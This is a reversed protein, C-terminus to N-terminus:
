STGAKMERFEMLIDKKLERYPVDGKDILKEWAFDIAKSLREFARDWTFEMYGGYRLDFLDILRLDRRNEGYFVINRFQLDVPLIGVNELKRLLLYVGEMFERVERPMARYAKVSCIEERFYQILSDGGTGRPTIIYYLTEPLAPVSLKLKKSKCDLEGNGAEIIEEKQIEAIACAKVFLAERKRKPIKLLKQLFGSFNLGKFIEGEQISNQLNEPPYLYGIYECNRQRIKIPTIQQIDRMIRIEFNGMKVGKSLRRLILADKKTYEQDSGPSRM